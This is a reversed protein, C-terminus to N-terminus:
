RNWDKPTLGEQDIHFKIAELPDPLDMPFQKKEYADVLTALIDLREDESTDAETAM